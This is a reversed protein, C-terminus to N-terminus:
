KTYCSKAKELIQLRKKKKTSKICKPDPYAFNSDVSVVGKERNKKEMLALTAFLLSASLSLHQSKNSNEGKKKGRLCAHRIFALCILIHGM